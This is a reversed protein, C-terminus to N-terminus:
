YGSKGDADVANARYPDGRNELWQVAKYPEDKYLLGYVPVENSAAIKMLTPHERRCSACWTAWINLLSIERELVSQM